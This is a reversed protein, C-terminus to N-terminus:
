FRTKSKNKVTNLAESIRNVVQNMDIPKSIILDAVQKKASEIKEIGEREMILALPLAKNSKKIKRALAQGNVEPTVSGVIVMDFTRRKLQNLGELASVATAVKYGKSGLLQSLIERIVDDDEIILIRAHKIKRKVPRVKSRKEKSALPLRMTIITGQDEKSVIEVTGHHRKVIASCLSLGLGMSDAAKTSFFPDLIRDEIQESIGVGSDQIYIHAFGANEETSLYLDGGKPMAEVANLIVHIIVDQIEKPNGEVPSVSRLYTRLNVKVGQKEAEEKFRQSTLAIAEKVIEKLDFLALESQDHKDRSLSGLNRATEMIQNAADEIKNLGEMLADNEPDKVERIRKTNETILRVPQSLKNTLGSAMTNLAEMKKSQTLENERKKRQELQTLRLLFAIRGNIRVKKITLDCSLTEGNKKIVHTEYSEPTYKGSVRKNYLSRMFPKLKRPFFDLFDRGLVEEVTYGFLDLTTKNVDIIKRQQVVVIGGPLADFLSNKSKRSKQLESNEKKISALRRRLDANEAKLKELRKERHEQEKSMM